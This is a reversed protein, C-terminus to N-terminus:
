KQQDAWCGLAVLARVAAEIQDAARVTAARGEGYPDAIDDTPDAVLMSAGARGAGAQKIWDSFSSPDDTLAATRRALDGLTFTVPWLTRDIGVVARLHERTMTLILNPPKSALLAPTIQRPQHASIDVGRDLAVACAEPDVPLNYSGTGASSIGVRALGAAALRERLIGEAMASRCVNATCVVLVHLSQEVM